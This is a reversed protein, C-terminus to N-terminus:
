SVISQSYLSTWHSTSSVLRKFNYKEYATKNRGLLKVGDTEENIFINM